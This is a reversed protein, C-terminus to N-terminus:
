RRSPYENVPISGVKGLISENRDGRERLALHSFVQDIAAELCCRDIVKKTTKYRKPMVRQDDLDWPVQEQEALVQLFM